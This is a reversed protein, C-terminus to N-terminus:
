DHPRRLFREPIDIFRQEDWPLEWGGLALLRDVLHATFGWIVIKESPAAPDDFVFAPGVYGSRHRVSFRHGPDSLDAITFRHVSEVEGRDVVGIPEAGSWTGVVSVVDFGSAAVHAAPLVGLVTVAAPDLGIEEQAERLATAASDADTDDVGGGPFAMQGAHKRLTAAREVFTVDPLGTDSLLILVAARRGGQPARVDLVPKWVLDPPDALAAVLRTFAPNVESM